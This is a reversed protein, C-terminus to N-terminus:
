IQNNIQQSLDQSLSRAPWKLECCDEQSLREIISIVPM